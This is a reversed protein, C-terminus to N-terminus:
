LRELGAAARSDSEYMYMAHVMVHLHVTCDLISDILILIVDYLATHM